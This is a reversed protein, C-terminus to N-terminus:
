CLLEAIPFVGSLFYLPNGWWGVLLFLVWWWSDMPSLLLATLCVICISLDYLVVAVVVQMHSWEMWWPVKCPFHSVEVGLSTTGLLYWLLVKIHIPISLFIRPPFFINLSSIRFSIYFQQCGFLCSFQSWCSKLHQQLNSINKTLWIKLLTPSM